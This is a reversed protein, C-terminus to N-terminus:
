DIKKKKWKRGVVIGVVFTIVTIVLFTGIHLTIM